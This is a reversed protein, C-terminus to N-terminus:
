TSVTFSVNKLVFRDPTYGFTVNSFDVSGRVVALDPAGPADIIEQEEQFIILNWNFEM